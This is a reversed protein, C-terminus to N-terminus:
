SSKDEKGQYETVDITNNGAIEEEIDPIANLRTSMAALREKLEAERREAIEKAEDQTPEDTTAQVVQKESYGRSKGKPKLFFLISAIDGSKIKQMLKAEAFDLLLHEAEERAIQCVDFEKVYNRVVRVTTGLKRAAISEYGRAEYLAVAVIEPTLVLRSVKVESGNVKLKVKPLEYSEERTINLESFNLNSPSPSEERSEKKKGNSPM